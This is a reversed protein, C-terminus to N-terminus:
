PAPPEHSAPPLNRRFKDLKERLRAVEAELGSIRKELGACYKAPNRQELREMIDFVVALSWLRSFLTRMRYARLLKGARLMRGFRFANLIRLFAVLPLLIIVLNIWHRLCYFLKESTASLMWIFEATFGTWILATALHVAMAVGPRKELAEGAGLEVGLVPLVLLTLVVMPLALRQELRETTAPGTRRWGVSPLWLWGEPTRTAMTMRLPPLLAVLALRRWRASWADPAARLGAVAELVVLAWLGAMLPVFWPRAWMEERFAQGSDGHPLVVGVLALFLLAVGLMAGHLLPAGGPSVAAAPPPQSATSMLDPGSDREPPGAEKQWEQWRTVRCNKAFVPNEGM